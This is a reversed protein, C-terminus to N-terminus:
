RKLSLRGPARAPAPRLCRSGAGGKRGPRERLEGGGPPGPLPARMAEAPARLSGAGVRAAARLQQPKESQRPARERGVGGGPEGRDGRGILHSAPVPMRAPGSPTARCGSTRHHLTAPRLLALMPPARPARISSQPYTHLNSAGPPHTGAVEQGERAGQSQHAQGSEPTLSAKTRESCYRQELPLQCKPRTRRKGM